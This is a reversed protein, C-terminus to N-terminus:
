VAGHDPEEANYGANVKAVWVSNHRPVVGVGKVHLTERMKRDAYEDIASRDRTQLKLVGDVYVGMKPGQATRDITPRHRTHFQDAKRQEIAIAAALELRQALALTTNGSIIANM